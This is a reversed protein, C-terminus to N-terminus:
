SMMMEHTDCHHDWQCDDNGSGTDQDFYCDMKCPANNQGPINGSFGAENNQCAGLCNPDEADILNDGDNDQCDGCEYLKGQCTAQFCLAGGDHIPIGGDVYAADPATFVPLDAPPGARDTVGAPIPGNGSPMDGINASIDNGAPMDTNGAGDEGGNPTTGCGGLALGAALLLTVTPRM